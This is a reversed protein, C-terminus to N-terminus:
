FEIIFFLFDIQYLYYFIHIYAIQFTHILIRMNNQQYVMIGHIRNVHRISQFNHYFFM